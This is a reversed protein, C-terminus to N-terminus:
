NAERKGTKIRREEVRKKERLKGRETGDKNM